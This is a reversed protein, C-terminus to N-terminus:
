IHDLLGRSTVFVFAMMKKLFKTYHEWRDDVKPFKLDIDTIQLIPFKVHYCKIKM